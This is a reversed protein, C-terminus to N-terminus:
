IIVAKCGYDWMISWGSTSGLINITQNSSWNYFASSEVSTISDPIVINTVGTCGEFAREGISTVSNPITISILGTCNEFAYAAIGETGEKITVETNQPITGKYKYYVKGTYVNGDPQNNYWATDDFAYEGVYTVSDPIEINTLSTCGNFAHYEISTVSDPITINTLSVCDTFVMREINTVGDPITISTLSSCRYFAGQEISKVSNPISINALSRCEWFTSDKITTVGDPITISTLSTCNTFAGGGINIVSNPIIISTLSTCQYFANTGINTIGNELVVKKLSSFDSFAGYDMQVISSPLYVGSIQVDSYYGCPNNALPGLENIERSIVLDGQMEERLLIESLRNNEVLIYGENKLEEWSKLMNVTGTQYLGPELKSWDIESGNLNFDIFHSGITIQYKAEIGKEENGLIIDKEDATLLGENVLENILDELSKQTTEGIENNMNKETFWLNRAEEVSAGRSEVNADEARTLIGNEGTLTSISVAALILLVIITIVLAILTIGNQNFQVKKLNKETM